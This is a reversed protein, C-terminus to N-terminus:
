AVLVACYHLTIYHLTISSELLGMMNEEVVLQIHPALDHPM